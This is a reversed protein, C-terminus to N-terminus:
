RARWAACLAVTGLAPLLWFNPAGLGALTLGSLACWAFAISWAVRRLWRQLADPARPLLLLLALTALATPDPALGAVEAQGISRGVWLGLWPHLGVAYAGLALGTWRALADVQMVSGCGEGDSARTRGRALLALALLVAAQLDWAIAYGIAATNISAFRQAHYAVAIWLWAAALLACGIRQPWVPAPRRGGAWALAALGLVGLAIVIPQAPWLAANYLELLRYYSRASFMLFDSPRYTWWESM